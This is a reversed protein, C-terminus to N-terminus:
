FERSNRVSFQSQGLERSNWIPFEQHGQGFAICWHHKLNYVSLGM